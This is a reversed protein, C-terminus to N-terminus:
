TNINNFHDLKDNWYDAIKPLKFIEMYMVCGLFKLIKEKNTPKWPHIRSSRSYCQANKIQACNRDTEGIILQLIENDILKRYVHFSTLETRNQPYSDDYLYPENVPFQIDLRLHTCDVEYWDSNCEDEKDSKEEDSPNYESGYILFEDSDGKELLQLLEVETLKKNKNSM